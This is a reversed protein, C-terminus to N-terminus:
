QPALRILPPIYGWFRPVAGGGRDFAHHVYFPQQMQEELFLAFLGAFFCLVRSFVAGPGRPAKRGQRITLCELDSNFGLLTGATGCSWFKAQCVFEKPKKLVFSSALRNYILM